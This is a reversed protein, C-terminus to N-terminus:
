RIPGPSAGPGIYEPSGIVQGLRTLGRFGRRREGRTEFEEAEPEGNARVPNLEKAVGWDMVQVENHEGVMINSPKLDRHFWAGNTPSPWPM